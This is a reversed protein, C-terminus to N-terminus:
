SAHIHHEKAHLLSVLFENTPVPINREKALRIVYGNIYEIETLRKALIDQVTTCKTESSKIATSEVMEYLDDATTNLETLVRACEECVQRILKSGYPNRIMAGNTSELIGTVANMGCNVVLKRMMRIQLDNWEVITSNLGPIESFAQMVANTQNKHQQEAQFSSFTDPRPLTALFYGDGPNDWGSIHQVSFPETRVTAHRNVGLIISPSQAREEPTPWLSELLEDAVGMGNQLLVLTSSRSLHSKISQVAEKAHQSKTTVIVNEMIGTFKNSKNNSEGNAVMTDFGGKRVPNSQSVRRYTIESQRNRFDQLARQSRLILTVNHRSGLDFATHCGVAGTGLIHFRM